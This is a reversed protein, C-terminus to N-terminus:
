RQKIWKNLKRFAANVLATGIGVGIAQMLDANLWSIALYSSITATTGDITDQLMLVISFLVNWLFFRKKATKYNLFIFHLTTRRRIYAAM